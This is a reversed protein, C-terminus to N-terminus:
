SKRPVSIDFHMVEKRIGLKEYLEIAPEDGYDAQVYIVWAKRQAAIERLRHILASAIGQRRHAEAVAMDYIYIERREQEFKELEYAVLGGVVSEEVLAALAVVHEKALLDGLYADKPPQSGYTEADEFARGFLANLARLHGVEHTRLRHIQLRNKMSIGHLLEPQSVATMPSHGSRPLPFQRATAGFGLLSRSLVGSEQGALGAQCSPIGSSTGTGCAHNSNSTSLTSFAVAYRSDCPYRIRTLLLFSGHPWVTMKRAVKM